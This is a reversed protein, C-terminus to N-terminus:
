VTCKTLMPIDALPHPKEMGSVSIAICIYTKLTCWAQIQGTQQVILDGHPVCIQLSQCDCKM